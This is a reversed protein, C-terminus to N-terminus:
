QGTAPNPAVPGSPQSPGASPIPGTDPPPALNSSADVPQPEPAPAPASQQKPPSKQHKHFFHSLAKGIVNQMKMNQIFLHTALDTQPNAITGGVHFGITASGDPRQVFFLAAEKPLRSMADPSLIMVMDASLSGGAGITGDGTMQFVGADLQLGTFRTLGDAIQFHTQVKRLDPARLEKVRLVDSLDELVRVGELKGATLQLDGEGRAPGSGVNPWKSQLDLSGTLKSSAGPNMVRSVQAMDLGKANVQLISSATMQRPNGPDAATTFEYDGGLRGGLASAEMPTISLSNKERSYTVPSSFDTLNFNGPLTVAAIKVTGTVDKSEYYGSTNVTADIGQLDVVGAGSADRITFSGEKVKLGKLVFAFPPTGQATTEGTEAADSPAIPKAEAPTQPTLVISPRVLTVSTLELRRHLLEGLAYACDVNEVKATLADPGNLHRADLQAEVEQLKIGSFLGLDIGQIQVPGGFSGSARTEMEHRFADSHIFTNLWVAGLAIALGLLLSLIGGTIFLWRFTRM